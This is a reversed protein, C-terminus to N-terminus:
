GLEEVSPDDFLEAAPHDPPLPPAHYPADLKLGGWVPAGPAPAQMPITAGSPGNDAPPSILDGVGQGLSRMGDTFWDDVASIPSDFAMQLVGSVTDGLVEAAIKGIDDGAVADGIGDTLKGVVVQFAIDAAMAVVGGVIDGLTMGCVVTSPAVVLGTPLPAISSCNLNPNVVVLLAAAIPNGNVTVSSPGFHSKSASFAIVLPLLGVPPFPPIPVHVIGYKIDSGRLVIQMGDVKIKEPSLTAFDWGNLVHGCVHPVKPAPAAPVVANIEDHVDLGVMPHWKLLLNHM